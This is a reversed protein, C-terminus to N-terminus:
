KLMYQKLEQRQSIGLKQLAASIHKKVTNSSIHMHDAIEQNMWGRAALMATAFETTTLDEAVNHGSEPNHIKRWGDSFRYTIDIIRKFDDPWQPKIVSELMGGLLGHHEGLGELLDDPRAKEWAALLHKQAAETQKLSMYGMVGALHLYIAPIPYQEAGMSLTAEVIGVSKGYDGKLYFYHAQIYLAFARLGIPLLPLFDWSPPVEEPLSLHMLVSAAFVTFAEIASVYPANGADDALANKLEKFAYEAHGTQGVSLNAYAYILCASFRYAADPCTIYPEAEQIAKEPQGSFYYYEAFAIDKKPGNEMENILELCHGPQFPTNMLPMFEPFDKGKVGLVGSIQNGKGKRPDQPKIADAPIKWSKGSKSAGNVRGEACYKQVRRDSINWKEAAEQVTIYEM